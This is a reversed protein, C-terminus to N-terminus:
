AVEVFHPLSPSGIQRVRIDNAKCNSALLYATLHDCIEYGMAAIYRRGLETIARLTARGGAHYRIDIDHRPRNGHSPRSFHSARSGQFSEKTITAPM